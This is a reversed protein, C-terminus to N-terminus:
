DVCGHLHSLMFCQWSALMPHIEIWAGTFTRRTSVGKSTKNAVMEIWAGTFTRRTSVGKSTKNAVM